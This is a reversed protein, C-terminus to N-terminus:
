ARLSSGIMIVQQLYLPLLSSDGSICQLNSSGMSVLSECICEMFESESEDGLGSSPPGRIFFQRSINMLIEFINRMASDYEATNADPSRKRCKVHLISHLDLGKSPITSFMCLM